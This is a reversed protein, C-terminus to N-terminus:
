IKETTEITYKPYLTYIETEFIMDFQELLQENADRMNDVVEKCWLLFSITRHTTWNEPINKSIGRINSIKDAIKVNKVFIPLDKAKEVQLLKRQSKPLSKDDSLLWVGDAIDKGFNSDLQNYTTKTDEITDHLIAACITKEDSIDSLSLIYMIDIIHNIYPEGTGKRRQDKHALSAFLLAKSILTTM